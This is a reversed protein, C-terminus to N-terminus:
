CKSFSFDVELELARAGMCHLQLGVSDFTHHSAVVHIAIDPQRHDTFHPENGSVTRLRSVLRVYGCGGCKITSEHFYFCRSIKKGLKPVIERFNGSAFIEAYVTTHLEVDHYM